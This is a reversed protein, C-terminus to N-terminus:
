TTNLVQYVQEFANTSSGKFIPKFFNVFGVINGGIGGEGMLSVRKSPYEGRAICFSNLNCHLMFVASESWTKFPSDRVQKIM